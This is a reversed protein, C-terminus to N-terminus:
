VFRRILIFTVIGVVSRALTSYITDGGLIVPIVDAVRRQVRPSSVLAVVLGVVIPDRLAKLIRIWFIATYCNGDDQTADTAPNADLPEDEEREDYHIDRETTREEDDVKASKQAARDLDRDDDYRESTPNRSPIATNTHNSNNIEAIITDILVDEIDERHEGDPSAPAPAIPSQQSQQPEPVGPSTTAGLPSFLGYAM